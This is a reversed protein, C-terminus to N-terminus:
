CNWYGIRKEADTGRILRFFHDRVMETREAARSFFLLAVTNSEYSSCSFPKKQETLKALVIKVRDRMKRGQAGHQYVVVLRDKEPEMVDFLEKPHLHNEHTFGGTNIGTDPDLFLDGTRPITSFYSKRDNREEFLTRDHQLLQSEKIRLLHAYLKSNPTNWPSTDTAMSDVLFNRLVKGEQLYEFVAGKWHDYADGLYELKM